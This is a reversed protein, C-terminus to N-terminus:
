MSINKYLVYSIVDRSYNTRFSVQGNYHATQKPPHNDYLPGVSIHKSPSKLFTAAVMDFGGFFSKSMSSGVHVWSMKVLGLCCLM